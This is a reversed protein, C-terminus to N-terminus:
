IKCMSCLLIHLTPAFGIYPGSVQFMCKTQRILAIRSVQDFDLMELYELLKERLDPNVSLIDELQPPTMSLITPLSYPLNKLECRKMYRTWVTKDKTAQFVIDSNKVIILDLYSFGDCTDM